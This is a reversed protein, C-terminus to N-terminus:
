DVIEQGCAKCYQKEKVPMNDTYVNGEKDVTYSAKERGSEAFIDVLMDSVEDPAKGTVIGLIQGNETRRFIAGNDERGEAWCQMIKVAAKGEM